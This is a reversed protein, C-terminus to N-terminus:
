SNVEEGLGKEHELLWKKRWEGGSYGGLSGDSAIVRHCPIMIPVPNAGCAQAVARVAEPRGVREALEQYSITEGYGIGMLAKWVEMQFETGKPKIRVDFERFKQGFYADLQATVMRSIVNAERDEKGDDVYSIFVLEGDEFSLKLRGIPSLYFATSAM